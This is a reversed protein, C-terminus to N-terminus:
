NLKMDGLMDEVLKLQQDRNSLQEKIVKEAIEVSLNAVQSKIDAVAAKKESEIAAQAQKIMK